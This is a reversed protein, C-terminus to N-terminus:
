YKLLINLCDLSCIQVWGSPHYVGDSCSPAVKMHLVSVNKEPFLVLSSLHNSPLRRGRDRSDEAKIVTFLLRNYDLSDAVWTLLCLM